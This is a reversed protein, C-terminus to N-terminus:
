CPVKAIFPSFSSCGSLNVSLGCWAGSVYVGHKPLPVRARQTQTSAGDITYGMLVEAVMARKPKVADVLGIWSYIGSPALFTVPPLPIHRIAHVSSNHYSTKYYTANSRKSCYQLFSRVGICWYVLDLCTKALVKPTSKFPNCDYLLRRM